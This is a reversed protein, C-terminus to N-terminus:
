SKQMRSTQGSMGGSWRHSASAHNYAWAPRDLGSYMVASLPRWFFLVAGVACCVSYVTLGPHTHVTRVAENTKLHSKFQNKKRGGEDDSGEM